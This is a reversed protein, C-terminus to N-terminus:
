ELAPTDNFLISWKSWIIWVLLYIAEFGRPPLPLLVIVKNRGRHFALLPFHREVRRLIVMDGSRHYPLVCKSLEKDDKAPHVYPLVYDEYCITAIKWTSKLMVIHSGTLIQLLISLEFWRFVIQTFDRWGNYHVVALVVPDNVTTYSIKHNGIISEDM